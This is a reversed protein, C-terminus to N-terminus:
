LTRPIDLAWEWASIEEDQWHVTLRGEIFYNTADATATLLSEIEATGDPRQYVARHHFRAEASEPTEAEIRFDASTEYGFTTGTEDYQIATYPQHWGETRGGGPDMTSHRVLDPAHVARFTKQFPLDMATAFAERMPTPDGQLLPLQLRGSSIQVTHPSASPWILPWYSLSLAIRLRHGTQLRYATTPFTLTTESLGQTGSESRGTAEPSLALNQITRTILSAEGNPAVDCLRATIQGSQEHSSVALTLEAAGYVVCEESLPATEFTLSRADDESQELPLGGYRGFYGTDGSANGVLLNFPIQWPANGSLARCEPGGLDIPWPRTCISPEASEIWFGRRKSLADQPPDYERLWVRMRPWDSIANAAKLWHDWWALALDQFGIAPGPHGHDPYHHGWPGVVGWVIDPRATTLSMVSNSYRDSWGGVALIPSSLREAQHTVSGWNWYAGPGEKEVWAKVPYTLQDLRDQWLQRWNPGVNPTPPAALIAPLTAGWEYTDTLLCGGMHHIDDEYRDHTACVAIVAKLAEPADVNAQLAATGGWSTGFMGVSGSCWPQAAIWDIVDRADSLEHDTYMDAMHGESDGSGRMDVRLCAYGHAAFYPHNREDRARVMDAKRYPIYELIAPVPTQNADEPLWLRAALPVGDPMPIWVHDTVNVTVQEGAERM